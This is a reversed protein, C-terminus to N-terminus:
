VPRKKASPNTRSKRAGSSGGARKSSVRSEDGPSTVRSVDVPRSSEGPEGGGLVLDAPVVEGGAFYGGDARDGAFNGDRDGAFNGDRMSQISRNSPSPGGTTWPSPAGVFGGFGPSIAPRRPTLAQQLNTQSANIKRLFDKHQNVAWTEPVNPKSNPLGFNKYDVYRPRNATPVISFNTRTGVGASTSRKGGRDSVGKDKGSGGKDSKDKSSFSGTTGGGKEKGSGGKDGAAKKAAPPAKQKIAKAGKKEGVAPVESAASRKPAAAGSTVEASWTTSGGTGVVGSGVALQSLSTLVVGSGAACGAFAPFPQTSTKSKPSRALPAFHFQIENKPFTSPHQFVSDLALKPPLLKVALLPPPLQAPARATKSTASGKKQASKDAGAAAGSTAVEEASVVEQQSRRVVGGEPSAGTDAQRDKGRKKAGGGATKGSVKAKPLAKPAAGAGVAGAGTKGPEIKRGKKMSLKLADRGDSPSGATGRGEGPAGGGVERPAGPPSCLCLTVWTDESVIEVCRKGKRVDKGSVIKSTCRRRMKSMCRRRM